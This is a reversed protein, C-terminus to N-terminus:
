VNSYYSQLHYVGVSAAFYFIGQALYFKNRDYVYDKKQTYNLMFIPCSNMNMNLSIQLDQDYILYSNPFRAM